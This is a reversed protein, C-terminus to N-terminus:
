PFHRSETGIFGDLCVGLFDLQVLMTDLDQREGPENDGLLGCPTRLVQPEEGLQPCELRQTTGRTLVAGSLDM